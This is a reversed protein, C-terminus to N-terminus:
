DAASPLSSYQDKLLDVDVSKHHVLGRGARVRRHDATERLPLDVPVFQETFRVDARVPKPVLRGERRARLNESNVRARRHM